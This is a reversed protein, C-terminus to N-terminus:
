LKKRNELYSRQVEFPIQNKFLLLQFFDLQEQIEIPKENMQIKIAYLEQWSSPDLMQDLSMKVTLSETVLCKNKPDLFSYTGEGTLIVHSSTFSIQFLIDLKETVPIEFLKKGKFTKNFVKDVYPFAYAHNIFKFLMLLKSFAERKVNRKDEEILYLIQCMKELQLCFSNLAQTEIKTTVASCLPELFRYLQVNQATAHHKLKSWNGKESVFKDQLAKLQNSDLDFHHKFGLADLFSSLDFGKPICSQFFIKKLEEFEESKLGKSFIDMLNCFLKRVAESDILSDKKIPFVLSRENHIKLAERKLINEWQSTKGAGPVEPILKRFSVLSPNEEQIKMDKDQSLMKNILVECAGIYIRYLLIADQLRMSFHLCENREREQKELKKNEDKKDDENENKDEKADGFLNHLLANLYFFQQAVKFSIKDQKVLTQVVDFQKENAIKPLKNNTKIDEITRELLQVFSLLARQYRYLNLVPSESIEEDEIWKIFHDNNTNSQEIKSAIPMKKNLDLLGNRIHEVIKKHDDSPELKSSPLLNAIDARGFGNSGPRHHISNLSTESNENAELLSIQEKLESLALSFQEKKTSDNLSEKLLVLQKEMITITEPSVTKLLAAKRLKLDERIVFSKVLAPTKPQNDKNDNTPFLRLSSSKVKDNRNSETKKASFNFSESSQTKNLRSNSDQPAPPLIIKRPNQTEKEKVPNPDYVQKNGTIFGIKTPSSM